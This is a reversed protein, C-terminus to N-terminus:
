SSIRRRAERRAPGPGGNRKWPKSSRASDARSRRLRAATASGARPSPGVSSVATPERRGAADRVSRARAACVGQSETPLPDVGFQRNETGIAFALRIGAASNLPFRRNQSDIENATAFWRRQWNRFWFRDVVDQPSETAECDDFLLRHTAARYHASPRPDSSGQRGSASTTRCTAVRQKSTFAAGRPLKHAPKVSSGRLLVQDRAAPRGVHPERVSREGSSV